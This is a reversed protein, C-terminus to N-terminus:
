KKSGYRAKLKAINKDLTHAPDLGSKIHILMWYWMLDGLEDQVCALYAGEDNAGKIHHARNQLVEGAEAALKLFYYDIPHAGDTKFAEKRYKILDM